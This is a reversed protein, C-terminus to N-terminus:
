HNKTALFNGLKQEIFRAETLTDLGELLTLTKDYKTLLDVSYTIYSTGKNFHIQQVVYVQDIDQKLISRQGTWPLPNHRVRISEKDAQISTKNIFGCIASYFMWIGAIAYLILFLYAVLSVQELVIAPYFVFPFSNWILSFLFLLVYRTSYWKKEITIAQSNETISFKEYIVHSVINLHAEM